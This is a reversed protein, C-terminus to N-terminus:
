RLWQKLEDALRYGALAAQKEAVTKASKTYGDPLEAAKEASRSSRVSGAGLHKSQLWITM